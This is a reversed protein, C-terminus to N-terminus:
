LIFALSTQKIPVCLIKLQYDQYLLYFIGCQNCMHMFIKFNSEQLIQNKSKYEM